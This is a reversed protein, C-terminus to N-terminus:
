QIRKFKKEIEYKSIKIMIPRGHPCTFPNEVNSLHKLLSNIEIEHMMDGSKIAHSCAIKMIKEIKIEYNNEVSKINDLIDFFLKKNDPKGFVLPVGRIAIANSGFEEIKFGLKNFVDINNKVTNLEINTLEIIDPVLLQQISINENDYEKKFNEFLIREHAAHQDIIYFNNDMDDEALIYTEFLVGLIKLRLLIDKISCNKNDNIQFSKDKKVIKRTSNYYENNSTDYIEIKDNIIENPNDHKTTEAEYTKDIFCIDTNNNLNNNEKNLEINPVLYTNNLKDTVIKELSNTILSIDHFKIELKSPHINVDIDSPNVNIFLIFAPYKNTPILTKYCKEISKSININKIYRNNVYLYQHNRNGRTYEPKSILGKISFLDNQLEIKLLNDLIEKGLIAYITDYINGNGPTKLVIKDDKIYNFSINYNSLSEKYVIDSIHNSETNNSKLFKRRVPINYFIDRVIITTGIPCGIYNKEAIKGGEILLQVGKINNKTKTLTEVKSISAISSLAEGRFGFSRLNQLDKINTIKSTSHSQFAMEVEDEKIGTGDDTIRIYTKGGDRIEIILNQAGADISNEILEKVVSSPREVVEGAAIKNITKMDLKKIKNHM